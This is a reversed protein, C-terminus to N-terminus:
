KALCNQFFSNNLLNIYRIQSTCGDRLWDNTKSDWYHCKLCLTEINKNKVEFGLSIPGDGDDDLKLNKIDEGPLSFSIVDNNALTVNGDTPFFTHDQYAVCISRDVKDFDVAPDNSIAEYDITMSSSGNISVCTETWETSERRISRRSLEFDPRIIAKVEMKLSETSYTFKGDQDLVVKEGIQDIASTFTTGAQGTMKDSPISMLGELSGLLEESMTASVVTMNNVLNSIDTAISQVEEMEIKEPNSEMVQSLSDLQDTIVDLNEEDKSDMAFDARTWDATGNM